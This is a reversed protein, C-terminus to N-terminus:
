GCRVSQGWNGGRVQVCEKAIPLCLQNLVLSSPVAEKLQVGAGRGMVQVLIPLNEGLEYRTKKCCSDTLKIETHKKYETSTFGDIFHAM